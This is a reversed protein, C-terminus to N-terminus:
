LDIESPDDAATWEGFRALHDYRGEEAETQMARRSTFGHEPSLMRLILKTFEAWVDTEALPADIEKPNSGLGIYAARAVRDASVSDFAGRELMAAELLLQKDFAAQERKSPPIGTKYDYILARAHDDVDIRDATGALKFDIADLSVEGSAEALEFKGDARRDRETEIFWEAVRMLRAKWMARAAPWPVERNLVREATKSLADR